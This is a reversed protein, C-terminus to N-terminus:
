SFKLSIQQSLSAGSSCFFTPLVCGGSSKCSSSGHVELSTTSERLKPEASHNISVLGQPGARRSSLPKAPRRGWIPFPPFINPEEWLFYSFFFPRFIPFQGFVMNKLFQGKKPVTKEEKRPAQDEQQHKKPQSCTPRTPSPRKTPTKQSPAHQDQQTSLIINYKFGM